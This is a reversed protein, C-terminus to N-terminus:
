RSAFEFIIVVQLISPLRVISKPENHVLRGLSCSISGTNIKISGTNNKGIRLKVPVMYIGPLFRPQLQRCGEYRVQEKQIKLARFYIEILSIGM